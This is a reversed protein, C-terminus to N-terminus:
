DPIRRYTEHVTGCGVSLRTTFKKPRRDEAKNWCLILRDGALKYIGLRQEGLFKPGTFELDIVGPTATPDLEISAVLGTDKGDKTWTMRGDEIVVALKLDDVDELSGSIERRVLKWDGEIAKLANRAAAERTEEDVPPKGGGVSPEAEGEEPPAPRIIAAPGRREEGSGSLLRPQAWIVQGEGPLPITWQGEAVGEALRLSLSQRPSEGKVPLHPISGTPRSKGQSGLWYDLSVSRVRNMPDILSVRVTAVLNAGRPRPKGVRVSGVRGGLFDRVRDGPVALHLQTNRIVAVAVGVVQGRADVVPGGSNGPHMGGNVQIRELLGSDDKRLSSISTKSVTIQKGLERGLPFGFIFVTQTEELERGSAVNLPPPLDDNGVVRILALDLEPDVGVVQGLYTREDDQGSNVVVDIRDPFDGEDKGMGIVHANTLVLGPEGTFFGSGQITRRDGLTVGLYVTSRKVAKLTASGLQPEDARAGTTWSLLGVLVGLVCAECRDRPRHTGSAWGGLTAM